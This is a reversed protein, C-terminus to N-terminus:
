TLNIQVHHASVPGASDRRYAVIVTATRGNLTVRSGAPWSDVTSLPAYLTTESIVEEGTAARVLKRADNVFCAVDVAPAYRPGTATEGEYTEVSVPDTFLRAIGM